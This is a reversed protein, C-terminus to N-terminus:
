QIHFGIEAVYPPFFDHKPLDNLIMIIPFKVIRLALNVFRKCWRLDDKPMFITSDPNVLFTCCLILVSFVLVSKCRVKSFICKYPNGKLFFFFM